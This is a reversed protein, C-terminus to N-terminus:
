NHSARLKVEAFFQEAEFGTMPRNFLPQGPEQLRGDVLSGTDVAAFGIEEILTLVDSKATADDAAVFIAPREARSAAPRGCAALRDDRITNFAKVMRAGPVRGAIIETSTAHGLEFLGGGPRFPNMADVVIKGQCAASSPMADGAFAAAWPAALVILEGFEAAAHVDVVTGRAALRSSLAVQAAPNRSGVRVEHGVDAVLAALTGGIRGSGIIGIKM